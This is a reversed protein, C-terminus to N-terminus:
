FIRNCMWVSYDAYHSWRPTLGLSDYCAYCGECMFKRWANNKLWLFCLDVEDVAAANLSEGVVRFCDSAGRKVDNIRIFKIEHSIILVEVIGNEIRKSCSIAFENAAARRPVGVADEVLNKGVLVEVM